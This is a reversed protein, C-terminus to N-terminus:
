SIAGELWLVFKGQLYKVQIYNHSTNESRVTCEDAPEDRGLGAAKKNNTVSVDATGISIGVM